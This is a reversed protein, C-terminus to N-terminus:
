SWPSPTAARARRRDALPPPCREIGPGSRSLLIFVARRPLWPRRQPAAIERNRLMHPPAAATPCTLRRGHLRGQRRTTSRLRRYIRPM